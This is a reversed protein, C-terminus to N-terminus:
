HIIAFSFHSMATVQVPGYEGEVVTRRVRRIFSPHQLLGIGGAPPFIEVMHQPIVISGAGDPASCWILATPPAGHWGIRIALEVTAGDGQPVWEIVNNKLNDLTLPQQWPVAMDGVGALGATFAAMGKNSGAASLTISSQASFLEEAGTAGDIVYWAAEDPAAFLDVLLGDFTIGGASVRGPMPHCQGDTGCWESYVSCEPVCTPTIILSQYFQCDGKEEVLFHTEPQPADGLWVEVMSSSFTGDAQTNEQLLIRGVFDFYPHYEPPPTVVEADLGDGDVTEGLADDTDPVDAAIEPLIDDVPPLDTTPLEGAVEEVGPTDAEPAVDAADKGNGGCAFAMVVWVCLLWELKRKM